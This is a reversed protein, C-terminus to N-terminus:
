AVMAFNKGNQKPKWNQRWPKPLTITHSDTPRRTYTWRMPKAFALNFYEIFDEQRTRLSNLSSFSGRKIARRNIIGFIIEIQNLWSTHKPLYVFRVRHSKDELFAKRTAMSKLIGHKGKQGLESKPIEELLAVYRILSDSCHVNLQDV